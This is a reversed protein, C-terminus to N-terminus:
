KALMQQMTAIEATQGAVIAEALAQVQPNATTSAVQEAMSIAGQHHAIMMQLWMTDFDAGQAM